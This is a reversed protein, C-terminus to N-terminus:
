NHVTMARSVRMANANIIVIALEMDVAHHQDAVHHQPLLTIVATVLDVM